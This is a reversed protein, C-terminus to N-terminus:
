IKKGEKLDAVIKTIRKMRTEEAKASQILLVVKKKGSPPLKEYAQMAKANKQLATRLAAPLEVTRPKDDLTLTVELTDGGSVGSNKRHEASLPILFQGGMSAVTSRYTYRKLTVVVPPRKGAGLSNLIKEPVVIGTNNGAQLITTKFKMKVLANINHLFLIIEHIQHPKHV